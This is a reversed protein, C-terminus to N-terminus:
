SVSKLRPRKPGPSTPTPPSLKALARELRVIVPLVSAMPIEFELANGIGPRSFKLNLRLVGKAKNPTIKINKPTGLVLPLVIGAM